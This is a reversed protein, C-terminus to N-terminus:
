HIVRNALELLRSNIKLGSDDAALSNIDFRVKNNEVFLGIIGGNDVFDSSDGVSLVRTGKISELAQKLRETNSMALFIIECEGNEGANTITKIQLVKGQVSKGQITSAAATLRDDGLICVNFSEADSYSDQQPWIVFKTFNYIFAAKIKYTRSVEDANAPLSIFVLAILFLKM